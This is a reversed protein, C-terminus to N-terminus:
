SIKYETFYDQLNECNFCNDDSVLEYCNERIEYKKM